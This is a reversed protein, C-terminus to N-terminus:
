SPPGPGIKNETLVRYMYLMDEVVEKDTYTTETSKGVKFILSIVKVNYVLVFFLACFCIVKQGFSLAAAFQLNNM